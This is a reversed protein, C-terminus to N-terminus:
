NSRRRRLPRAGHHIMYIFVTQGVVSYIIRYPGVIIERLDGEHDEPVLRGSRPFTELREVTEFVRTAFLEAASVSSRAISSCISELEELAENTWVLSAV